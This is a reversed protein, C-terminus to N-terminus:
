IVEWHVFVGVMSQQIRYGCRTISDGDGIDGTFMTCQGSCIASKYSFVGSRLNNSFQNSVLLEATCRFLFLGTSSSGQFRTETITLGSGITGQTFHKPQQLIYLLQPIAILGM